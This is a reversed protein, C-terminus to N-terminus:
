QAGSGIPTVGINTVQQRRLADMVAVLQGYSVQERPTIMATGFVGAPAAGKGLDQAWIKLTEEVRKALERTEPSSLETAKVKKGSRKSQIILTTPNKMEVELDFQGETNPAGTGHSQKVQVSGLQVWVATMLLFCICM